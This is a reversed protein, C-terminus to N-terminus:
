GFSSLDVPQVRWFRKPSICTRLRQLHLPRWWSCNRTLVHQLHFVQIFFVKINKSYCFIFECSLVFLHFFAHIMQALLGTEVCWTEYDLRYRQLAADKRTVGDLLDLLTSAVSDPIIQLDCIHLIDPFVGPLADEITKLIRFIMPSITPSVLLFSICHFWDLHRLPSFGPISTFPSPGHVELWEDKTMILRAPEVHLCIHPQSLDPRKIVLTKKRPALFDFWMCHLWCQRWPVPSKGWRWACHVPGWSVRWCWAVACCQLLPVCTQSICAVIRIENWHKWSQFRYYLKVLWM